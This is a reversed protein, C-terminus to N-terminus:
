RLEVKGILRTENGVFLEGNLSLTLTGSDSRKDIRIVAGKKIAVEKGVKNLLNVEETVILHLPFDKNEFPSSVRAPIKVPNGSSRSAGQDASVVDGAAIEVSNPKPSREGANTVSSSNSQDSAKESNKDVGKDLFYGLIALALFGIIALVILKLFCGLCSRKKPAEQYSRSVYDIEGADVNSVGDNANIFDERENESSDGDFHVYNDSRNRSASAKQAALLERHRREQDRHRREQDRQLEKHRQEELRQGERRRREEEM